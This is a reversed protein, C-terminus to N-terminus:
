RGAKALQTYLDVVAATVAEFQFQRSGSILLNAAAERENSSSATLVDVLQHANSRPEDNNTEEQRRRLLHLFDIDSFDNDIAKLLRRIFHVNEAIM